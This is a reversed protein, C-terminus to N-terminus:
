LNVNKFLTLLYAYSLFVSIIKLVSYKHQYSGKNINVIINVKILIFWPNVTHTNPGDCLLNLLLLLKKSKQGSHPNLSKVKHFM